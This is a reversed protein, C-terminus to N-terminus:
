IQFLQWIALSNFFWFLFGIIGCSVSHRGLTHFGLPRLIMHGTGFCILEVFITYLAEIVFQGM